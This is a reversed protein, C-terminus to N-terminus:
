KLELGYVEGCTTCCEFYITITGEKFDDGYTYHIDKVRTSELESCDCKIMKLCDICFDEDLRGHIDCKYM